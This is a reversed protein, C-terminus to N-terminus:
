AAGKLFDRVATWAGGTISPSVPAPDRVVFPSHYIEAPLRWLGPRKAIILMEGKQARPLVSELLWHRAKEASPLKRIAKRNEPEASIKPSRYPCLNVLVAQGNGILDGYNTGSYYPSVNPWDAGCPQDVRHLYRQIAEQSPFEEATGPGYGANAGLIVIPANIIDGVFPSVPFDLNFSHPSEALKSRDDPHVWHGDETQRQAKFWFGWLPHARFQALADGHHKFGNERQVQDLAQQHSPGDVGLKRAEKVRRKTEDRAREIWRNTYQDTM